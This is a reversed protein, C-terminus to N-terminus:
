LQVCKLYNKFCKLNTLVPKELKSVGRMALMRNQSNDQMIEPLVDVTQLLYANTFIGGAFLGVALSAAIRSLEPVGLNLKKFNVWIVNESKSAFGHKRM